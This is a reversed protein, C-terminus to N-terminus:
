NADFKEKVVTVPSLTASAGARCASRQPRVLNRWALLAALLKLACPVGAYVIALAAIGDASAAGPRYGLWQVLPLAIGAALALNFKTALTWLGFYAGARLEPPGQDIADALLSPPLALDASLAIGSAACIILFALTDGTRLQTAWVFAAIAVAMAVLWAEAKGIRRALAVWAPMAVAAALFYLGLFWGQRAEAGIADKIFFLVLTAPIAAAVGNIVFVGLLRRFAPVRLAAPLTRIIDLVPGTPRPSRPARLVTWGGCILLMGAFLWSLFRLGHAGDDFLGPIVAAAMVGALALGERTATIRTRQHPDTSLEAGWAQHNITAVSYAAYVIALTGALWWVLASSGSVLPAFLAIMGAALAPLSWAILRSRNTTRDSWAGLLPDVVCDLLRLGLLV